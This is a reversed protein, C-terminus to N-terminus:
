EVLQWVTNEGGSLSLQHWREFFTATEPRAFWGNWFQELEALSEFELEVTIRDFPGIIPTYIRYAHPADARQATLMGVATEMRGRDVIFTRRDVIM